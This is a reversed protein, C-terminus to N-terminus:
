IHIPQLLDLHIIQFSRAQDFALRRRLLRSYHPEAIIHVAIFGGAALGSHFRKILQHTGVISLGLSPQLTYYHNNVRHEVGVSAVAIDAPILLRGPSIGIHMWCCTLMMLWPGASSGI